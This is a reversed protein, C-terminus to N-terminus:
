REYEHLAKGHENRYKEDAKEDAEKSENKKRELAINIEQMRMKVCFQITEGNPVSSGCVGLTPIQAILALSWIGVDLKFQVYAAKYEKVYKDLQASMRQDLVRNLEEDLSETPLVAPVHEENTKNRAFRIEAMQKEVGLHIDPGSPADRGIFNLKYQIYAAKYEEVWKNLDYEMVGDVLINEYETLGRVPTETSVGRQKMKAKTDEEFKADCREIEFFYLGDFVNGKMQSSSWMLSVDITNKDCIQSNPFETNYKEVDKAFQDGTVDKVYADRHKDYSNSKSWDHDDGYQFELVCQNQCEALNANFIETALQYEANTKERTIRIEEMKNEISQDLSNIHPTRPGRIQSRFLIYAERYQDEYRSTYRKLNWEM